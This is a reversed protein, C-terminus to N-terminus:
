DSFEQTFMEGYVGADMVGIGVKKFNPSLINARHGPSNMLGQMALATNPAFALNEGAYGYEIGARNMRDFPSFGEPTYHSFYGRKLMDKGHERGADRLANDFLLPALDQSVREKNIMMWMDKEASPDPSPNSFSFHLSVIENSKPEVTFFTLSEHIAGGFVDNISKEFQQSNTVLLSGIRSSFVAKKLLPSLPLSVILTCIFSLLVFGSALGPFIGLFRNVYSFVPHKEPQLRTILPILLMRLLMSLLLESVVAALFFGLANAFGPPLSMAQILLNGFYNYFSLGAIFSLVLTTFDVIAILVGAFYGEFTYFLLTLIIVGDLLTLHLNEVLLAHLFPEM